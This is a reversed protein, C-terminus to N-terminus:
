SGGRPCARWRASCAHWRLAVPAALAALVGLVTAPAVAPVACFNAPVAVLSVEASLMAVVPACALQAAAPVALCSAVVRPVVQALRDRWGPALLLLGATALVSLAFGYSRSLWPDGLILVVAAACLVPVGRSSRGSALALLGVAGMATARLLSPEPRAMILFGAMAALGLV